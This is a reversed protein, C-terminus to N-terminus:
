EHMRLARDVADLAASSALEYTPLFDFYRVCTESVFDVRREADAEYILKGEELVKHCFIPGQSELLVIDV